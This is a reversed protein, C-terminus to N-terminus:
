ADDSGPKLDYGRARVEDPERSPENYSYYTVLKGGIVCFPEGTKLTRACNRSHIKRTGSEGWIWYV